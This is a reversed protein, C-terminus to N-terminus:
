MRIVRDIPLKAEGIQISYRDYGVARLYRHLMSEIWAANKKDDLYFEVFEFEEVSKYFARIAGEASAQDEYNGSLKIRM